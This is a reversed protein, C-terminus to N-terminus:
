ALHPPATTVVPFIRDYAINFFFAYILYFTVIALDM